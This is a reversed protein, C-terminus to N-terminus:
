LIKKVKLYNGERLPAQSLMKETYIGSEHGEGDERMINRLPFDSSKKDKIEGGLAKVESVYKLISEFEGSLKEAEADDLKIRALKALKLVKEKNM